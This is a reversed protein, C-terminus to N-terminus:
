GSSRCPATASIFVEKCARAIGFAKEGGLAARM